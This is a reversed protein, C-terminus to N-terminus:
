VCKYQEKYHTKRKESYILKQAFLGINLKAESHSSLQLISAEMITAKEHKKLCFLTFIFWTINKM